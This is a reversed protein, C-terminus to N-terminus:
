KVPISRGPKGFSLKADVERIDDDSFKITWKPMTMLEFLAAETMPATYRIRICPELDDNLTIIHEWFGKM